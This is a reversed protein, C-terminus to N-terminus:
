PKAKRARQEYPKSLDEVDDDDAIIHPTLFLFLETRTTQHEVHGFLGGLIPISSLIPIGGQSTEHEHDTLGGLVITQGDRILLRTDVSRTSIVPADFQQESTAANVEQTLQLMVYGDSSITPVVRLRTGVDKYEVVQDRATNDTPLVRAVQVFPRQSGVNIEAPENNAALVVPRSVITADGRSAAASLTAEVDVGGIGMVKLAFDAVGLGSTTTASVTTNTTGKVHTSPLTADVGFSFSRDTRIEAVLVEILVQLPRVDIAKVAAQILGFDSPSARVLLTNARADPVITVDGAFTANPTVAGPALQVGPAPPVTVQRNRLDESLTRAGEGQEGLASTRGYLSNVTAAVEVARAHRLPIVFLEIDQARNAKPIPPVATRQPERPRLAYTGSSSDAVLDINQSDLVGRLVRVVDARPVPRPTELTVHGGNIAGIVVPRDLYRGLAQVATRLDVDVLRIAVSDNRSATLSDNQASLNRSTAVVLVAAQLLIAKAQFFAHNM